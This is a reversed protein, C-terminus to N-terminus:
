YHRIHSSTLQYAVNCTGPQGIECYIAFTSNWAHHLLPCRIMARSRFTICRFGSATYANRIWLLQLCAYNLWKWTFRSIRPIQWSQRSSLDLGADKSIGDPLWTLLPTISNSPWFV